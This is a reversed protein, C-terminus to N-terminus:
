AGRDLAIFFLKAFIAVALLQTGKHMTLASLDAHFALALDYGTCSHGTFGSLDAILSIAIGVWTDVYLAGFPADTIFALTYVVGAVSDMARWRPTASIALAYIQAFVFIAGCILYTQISDTYCVIAIV